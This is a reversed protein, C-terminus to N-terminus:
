KVGGGGSKSEEAGTDEEVNLLTIDKKIDADDKDIVLPPKEDFDDESDSEGDENPEYNPDEDWEFM